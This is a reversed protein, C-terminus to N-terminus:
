ILAQARLDSVTHLWGTVLGLLPERHHQRPVESANTYSNIRVGAAINIDSELTSANGIVTFSQVLREANADDRM